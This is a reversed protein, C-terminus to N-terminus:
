PTSTLARSRCRMRTFASAEDAKNKLWRLSALSIYAYTDRPAVDRAMMFDKRAAATNGQELAAAGRSLYAKVRVEALMQPSSNRDPATQNIRDILETALRQASKADGTALSIQVQM